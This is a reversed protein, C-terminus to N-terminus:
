NKHLNTLSKTLLQNVGWILTSDALWLIAEVEIPKLDFPLKYIKSLGKLGFYDEFSIPPACYTKKYDLFFLGDCKKFVTKNFTKDKKLLSYKNGNFINLKMLFELDDFKTIRKTNSYFMSRVEPKMDFKM